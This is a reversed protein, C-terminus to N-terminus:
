RRGDTLRPDERKDVGMLAMGPWQGVLDTDDSLGGGFDGYPVQRNDIWWNIFKRVGKLDEIQRFAWLPMGKPPVPQTFSLRGQSNFSIDAWIPVLTTNSRMCARALATRNLM